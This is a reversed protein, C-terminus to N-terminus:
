NDSPFTDIEVPAEEYIYAPTQNYYFHSLSFCVGATLLFLLITITLLMRNKKTRIKSPSDEIYNDINDQPNGFGNVLAEYTDINHDMIYDHVGVQISSLIKAKNKLRFPLLHKIKKM